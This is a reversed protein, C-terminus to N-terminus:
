KLSEKLTDYSDFEKKIEEIVKEMTTNSKKLLYLVADSDKIKNMTCIPCFEAPLEYRVDDLADDDLLTILKGENVLYGDDFTHGNECEYMEAEEMSMDYGCAVNGSVDCIFSSSSSNSVFGKRIKM